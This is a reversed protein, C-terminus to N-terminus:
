VSGCSAAPPPDELTFRGLKGSRFDTWLLKAARLEDVAGGKKLCGRQRGIAALIAYNEEVAEDVNYAGALLGPYRKKLFGILELALADEELVEHRIAGTFALLLASQRNDLKPWLVGPTDLVEWDAVRVWQKGRTVGPRDGASAAARGVLANLVTSKGSNPIGAIGVRPAKRRIKARDLAASERLATRLEKLGQGTRGNFLVVEEGQQRYYEAWALALQADALDVKNLVLVRPKGALLRLLDPNRSSKPIRADAVEILVDLLPLMEKLQRKAKAMHGPYWGIEM